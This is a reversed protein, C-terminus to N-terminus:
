WEGRGHDGIRREVDRRFEEPEVHYRAAADIIALTDSASPPPDLGKDLAEVAALAKLYGIASAILRQRRYFLGNGPKHTEVIGTQAMRTIQDQLNRWLPHLPWRSTNTDSTPSRLTTHSSALERLLDGLYPEIEDISSIGGQVLRDRRAQFEVRWVNDARGWISHFWAKGSAQAIEASKDYIRVVVDGTGFSFTELKGANRWQVDKKARSKFHELAFDRHPLHFDFAYDLRSVTSPQVPQLKLRAAWDKLTRDLAQYGKSWLGVSKFQVACSPQMREALRIRLDRNELVYRYPYSGQALLHLDLGGLCIKKSDRDVADRALTKQYELEAFDIAGCSMDFAYTAYLSDIGSTLFEFQPPTRTLDDTQM